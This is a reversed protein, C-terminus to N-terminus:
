LAAIWVRSLHDEVRSRIPLSWFIPFEWFELHRVWAAAAQDRVGCLGLLILLRRWPLSSAAGGGRWLPPFVRSRFYVWLSFGGCIPSAWAKHSVPQGSVQLHARGHLICPVGSGLEFQGAGVLVLLGTWVLQFVWTYFYSSVARPMAARARKKGAYLLTPAKCQQTLLNHACSILSIKTPM